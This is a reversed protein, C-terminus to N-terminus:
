NTPLGNAFCEHRPPPSCYMSFLAECEQLEEKKPIAGSTQYRVECSIFRGMEDDNEFYEVYFAGCKNKENYELLTETDLYAEQQVGEEFVDMYPSETDTFTGRLLKKHIATGDFSVRMYKTDITSVCSVHDINCAKDNTTLYTVKLSENIDMFKMIPYGVPLTPLSWSVSVLYAFITFHTFHM